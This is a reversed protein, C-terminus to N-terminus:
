NIFSLTKLWNEIHFRANSNLEYKGDAQRFVLGAKQMESLTNRSLLADEKLMKELQKDSLKRHLIFHYLLLKWKHNKIKPFAKPARNRISLEGEDNIEISALWDHLAVGVNGMSQSHIKQILADTKKSNHVLGDHYFIEAGGIKHRNLIIKRLESGSVPRMIITTLLKTELQTAKKILQYSHKNCNLIFIHKDGVKEILEALANLCASGDTTRTWWKELDNFVFVRSKKLQNLISLSTGNKAFVKQFALDLDNGSFSQNEPPNVDFREADSLTKVLSESFYTKGSLADGIIMIAGSTGSKISSLANLAKSFERDETNKTGTFHSGSFLKKYYFPLVDSVEPNISHADVFERTHEIRNFFTKNQEDFKLKDIEQKRQDVFDVVKFGYNKSAKAIHQLQKQLRSKLIPKQASKSLLEESNLITRIDLNSQTQHLITSLDLASSDAFKNLAVLLNAVNEREKKILGEREENTGDSELENILQSIHYASNYIEESNENLTVEMRELIDQLPALYNTQVIHNQISSLNVPMTEVSEGQQKLLQNFSEPSMLEVQAPSNQSISITKKEEEELLNSFSTHSAGDALIHIGNMASSGLPKGDNKDLAKAASNLLEIKKRQPSLLSENLHTKITSNVAALSLGSHLLHWGTEAQKHALQQNRFWYKAFDFVNRKTELQDKRSLKAHEKKLEAFYAQNEYNELMDVCLSREFNNVSVLANEKLNRSVEKQAILLENISAKFDALANDNGTNLNEILLYCQNAIETTLINLVVFNQAGFENLTKHINPLIRASFLYGLTSKWRLKKGTNVALTKPATSIFEERSIVFTNIRKDFAESAAHLKNERFNISLDILRKSLQQVTPIAESGSYVSKLVDSSKEVELRLDEVFQAYFSAISTLAPQSLEALSAILHADFEHVKKNLVESKTVPLNKLASVKEDVVIVDQSLDLELENFNNSAKVMLTSGITEFLHNTNVIFDAQKEMRINPIGILTLDTNASQLAVIDYFPKQEVGNNIIKIEVNVRLDKVLQTIKSVIIQNDINNHNVFLVRIGANNWQPSQLIFRAINLMMEANKSDTERWWLDVTKYNGYKKKHDFDLYLLNYDLQLLKQTMTGYEASHNLEKPWGMMITNPEVGSFGFTSAINAIGNFINDVRVQRAFVGLKEFDEDKVVQNAKSLVKENKKNLILKFNTVIGTRGSLTHGLEVLYKRHASEGSFLIINPNWSTLDSDKADLRKLGKAVINEWVSKWVDGSQLAIQKRQLWFYIGFIIVISGFMALVDLKFMVAFSAAFGILGIWRKVKFTPQFDPNAWSELFFSLNIVGYAVLYFMSVVRAIVDLEGILIGSFAIVFVLLLANVPENSKGKGKGFVRPTIRDLSMAQLIRPGGLVGGLASSLTAGWIGAVVAPAFFAIKMLINYDNRLTESGIYNALFIALVIYVVFGVAIASITGIPIAKKPDKLDGSMAIGATFGTVAPFFIAFVVELPVSGESAFLMVSEPAFEHTGLFISVLSVVIAALIFFQTKLAVATSILAVATLGILALSGTMRLGNISTDFGFYGNFSEAFGILYLSISFATGVYLALGIAGGIPIGMSRSLIYYLGGAGVKKDTAISSISLGTSISIVHAIVIIAITGLLGANGVVWGMRMYMIVGLITLLSPTFVGAFAGFKKIGAM